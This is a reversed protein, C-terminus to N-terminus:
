RSSRSRTLPQAQLNQATTVPAQVITPKPTATPTFTATPAPTDTPIVAAPATIAVVAATPTLTPLLARISIGAAAITPTATTLVSARAESSQAVERAAAQGTELWAIAQTGALTAVISGAVISSKLWTSRRTSKAPRRRGPLNTSSVQTM